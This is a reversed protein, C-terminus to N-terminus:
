SSLKKIIEQLRTALRLFEKESKGVDAFLLEKIEAEHFGIKLLYSKIMQQKSVAESFHSREIQMAVKKRLMDILQQQKDHKFLYEGHALTYEKFSRRQSNRLAYALGLRDSLFWLWAFLLVFFSVVLEPAFRWLLVLIHDMVAGRLIVFQESDSALISLLFAHDHDEINSNTWIEDSAIITLMGEGVYFQLFQLYDDSDYGWYMPTLYDVSQEEADRDEGNIYPHTLGASSSFDISLSDDFGEFSLKTLLASECGCDKEAESDGEQKAIEDAMEEVIAESFEEVDNDYKKERTVQFHSLLPDNDVGEAVAVIMHGGRHMWDIWQEGQKPNFSRLANSVLITNGISFNDVDKIEQATHVDIATKQLYLEAAYFDNRRAKDSFGVDIEKEYQEIYLFWFTAALVMFLIFLLIIIRQKKDLM